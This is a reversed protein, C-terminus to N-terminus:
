QERKIRKARTHGKLCKPTGANEVCLSPSVEQRM